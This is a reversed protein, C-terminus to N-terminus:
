GGLNSFISEWDYDKYEHVNNKVMTGSSIELEHNYQMGREFGYVRIDINYEKSLQQYYEVDLGWAQKFGEICVTLFPEDIEYIDISNSEVFARRSNKLWFQENTRISLDGYNEEIVVKNNIVEPGDEKLVLTQQAQFVEKAFKIVDNNKGRIKLEGEIWNPM